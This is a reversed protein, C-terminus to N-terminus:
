EADLVEHLGPHPLLLSPWFEVVQEIDKLDDMCTDQPIDRFMQKITNVDELDEPDDSSSKTESELEDLEALTRNRYIRIKDMWMDKVKPLLVTEADPEMEAAEAPTVGILKLIKAIDDLTCEVNGGDVSAIREIESECYAKENFHTRGRDPKILVDMPSMVYKSEDSCNNYFNNFDIEIVASVPIRLWDHNVLDYVTLVGEKERPKRKKKDGSHMNIYKKRRTVESTGRAWDIADNENTVQIAYKITGSFRELLQNMTEHYNEPVKKM